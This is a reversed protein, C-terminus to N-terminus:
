SDMQCLNWLFLVLFILGLITGDSYMSNNVGPEPQTWNAFQIQSSCFTPLWEPCKLQQLQLDYCRMLYSVNQPWDILYKTIGSMSGQCRVIGGLGDDVVSKPYLKNVEFNQHFTHSTNIKKYLNLTKNFYEVESVNPFCTAHKYYEHRWFSPNDGIFRFYHHGTKKDNIFTQKQYTNWYLNLDDMLPELKTLNFTVSHNCYEPYSHNYYEPWLGHITFDLKHQFAVDCGPNDYYNHCIDPVYFQTLILFLTVNEM